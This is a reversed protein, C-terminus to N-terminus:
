DKSAKAVRSSSASGKGSIRGENGGYGRSIESSRGSSRPLFFFLCFVNALSGAATTHIVLHVVTNEYFVAGGRLRTVIGELRGDLKADAAAPCFEFRSALDPPLPSPRPFALPSHDLGPRVAFPVRVKRRVDVVGELWANLWGFGESGEAGESSGAIRAAMGTPEVTTSLVAGRLYERSSRSAIRL